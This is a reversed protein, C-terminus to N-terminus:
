QKLEENLRGGEHEKGELIRSRKVEIKKQYMTESENM